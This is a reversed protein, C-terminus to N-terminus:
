VAMALDVAVEWVINQDGDGSALVIVLRRVGYSYGSISYAADGAVRLKRPHILPAPRGYVDATLSNSM